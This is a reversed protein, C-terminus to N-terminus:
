LHRHSRARTAPRSASPARDTNRAHEKLRRTYGGDKAKSPSYFVHKSYVKLRILERYASLEASSEHSHKNDWANLAADSREAQIKTYTGKMAEDEDFESPLSYPVWQLLDFAREEPCAESVLFLSLSM